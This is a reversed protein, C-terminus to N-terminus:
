EKEKGAMYFLMVWVLVRFIPIMCVLLFNIPISPDHNNAKELQEASIWGNELIQKALLSSTAYLILAWILVSTLYSIM